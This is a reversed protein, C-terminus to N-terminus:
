LWSDRYGKNGFLTLTWDKSLDKSLDRYGNSASSPLFVIIPDLMLYHKEKEEAMFLYSKSLFFLYNNTKHYRSIINIYVVTEYFSYLKKKYSTLQCYRRSFTLIFPGNNSKLQLRLLSWYSGGAIVAGMVNCYVIVTISGLEVLKPKM